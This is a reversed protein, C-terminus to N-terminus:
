VDAQSIGEEGKQRKQSILGQFFLPIPIPRVCPPTNRELMWVFCDSDRLRNKVLGKFIHQSSLLFGRGTEM